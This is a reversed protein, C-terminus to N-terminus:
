DVKIEELEVQQSLNSIIGELHGIGVNVLLKDIEDKRLADVIGKAM